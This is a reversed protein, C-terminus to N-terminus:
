NNQACAGVWAIIADRGEPFEMIADQPMFGFDVNVWKLPSTKPDGIKSKLPNTKDILKEAVMGAYCMDKNTGCLWVNHGPDGHCGETACHGPKGVAFYKNYLETYTPATKEPDCAATADITAGGDILPGDAAPPAADPTEPFEKKCGAGALIATVCAAVAVVRRASRSRDIMSDLMAQKSSPTM